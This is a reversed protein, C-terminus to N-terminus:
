LIKKLMRSYKLAFCALNEYREDTEMLEDTLWLCNWFRDVFKSGNDLTLFIKCKRRLNFGNFNDPNAFKGFLKLIILLLDLFIFSQVRNRFVSYAVISAKKITM